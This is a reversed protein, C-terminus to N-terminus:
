NELIVKNLHTHDKHYEVILILKNRIEIKSNEISFPGEYSDLIQGSTSYIETRFIEKGKNLEDVLTFDIDCKTTVDYKFGYHIFLPYRIENNCENSIILTDYYLEPQESYSYLGIIESKQTDVVLDRITSPFNLLKGNSMRFELYQRFSGNNKLKLLWNELRNISLEDPVSFDAEITFGKIKIITDKVNGSSDSVSVFLSADKMDDILTYDIIAVKNNYIINVNELNSIDSYKIIEIGSDFNTSDYIHIQGSCIDSYLSASSKDMIINEINRLHNGLNMGYSDLTGIGFAIAGFDYESTLVVSDSYVPFVGYIYGSQGVKEFKSQNLLDGNMYISNALTDACSIAIYHKSIESVKPVTYVYKNVYQQTPTLNLLFPDGMIFEPMTKMYESIIIPKESSVISLSDLIFQRWESKNLVILENNIKITNSDHLSIIRYVPLYEVDKRHFHGIVYDTGNTYDPPIQNILYDRSNAINLIRAGRHGSFVAIKKDAKINTGTLDYQESEIGSTFYYVQDKDLTINIINVDNQGDFIKSNSSIKINTGDEQGIVIGFGYFNNTDAPNQSELKSNWSSLTYEYGSQNTPILSTADASNFTSSIINASSNQSCTIKFLKNSIHPPGVIEINMPEDLDYRLIKDKGIITDLILSGSFYMQINNNDANSFLSLQIEKNSFEDLFIINRGLAFLFEKGAYSNEKANTIAFALFVFSIVIFLKM